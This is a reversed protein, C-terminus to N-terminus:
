PLPPDPRLTVQVERNGTTLTVRDATIETVTWGNLAAGVEVEVAEDGRRDRMLALWREGERVIASVVFNPPPPPPPTTAASVPAAAIEPPRRTPMFLPRETIVALRAESLPGPAPELAALEDSGASRPTASPALTERPQETQWALALGLLALVLLGLRLAGSM